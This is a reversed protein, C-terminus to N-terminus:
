VFSFFFRNKGFCMKAVEPFFFLLPSVMNIKTISDTPNVLFPSLIVIEQTEASTVRVIEQTGASTV